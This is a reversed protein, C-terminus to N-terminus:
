GEEYSRSVEMRVQEESIKQIMDPSLAQTINVSISYIGCKLDVPHSVSSPLFRGFQELVERRETRTLIDDSSLFEDTEPIIGGELIKRIHYLKRDAANKMSEPDTIRVYGVDDLALRTAKENVAQVLMVMELYLLSSKADFKPRCAYKSLSRRGALFDDWVESDMFLKEDTKIDNAMVNKIRSYVETIPKNESILCLPRKHYAGNELEYIYLGKRTAELYVKSPVIKGAKKSFGGLITSDSSNNAVIEDFKAMFGSVIDEDYAIRGISNPYIPTSMELGLNLIAFVVDNGINSFMCEPHVAIDNGKRSYIVHCKQLQEAFVDCVAEGIPVGDKEGAFDVFPLFKYGMSKASRVLEAGRLRYVTDLGLKCCELFEMEYEASVAFLINLGGACVLSVHPVKLEDLTKKVNEAYDKPVVKCAGGRALLSKVEEYVKGM